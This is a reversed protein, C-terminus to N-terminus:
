RRRGYEREAVRAAPGGLGSYGIAVLIVIGGIIVIPLIAKYKFSGFYDKIDGGAGTIAKGAESSGMKWGLASQTAKRTIIESMQDVKAGAVGFGYRINLRAEAAKQQVLAPIEAARGGFYELAYKYGTASEYAKRRVTETARTVNEIYPAFLDKWTDSM